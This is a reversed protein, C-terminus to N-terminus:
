FVATLYGLFARVRCETTSKKLKGYCLMPLAGLFKLARGINKEKLIYSRVRVVALPNPLAKFFSVDLVHLIM